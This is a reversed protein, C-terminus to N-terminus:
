QRSALRSPSNIFVIPNVIAPAPASRAPFNKEGASHILRLPEMESEAFALLCVFFGVEPLDLDARLEHIEIERIAHNSRDPL